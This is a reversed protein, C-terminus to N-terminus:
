RMSRMKHVTIINEALLESPHPLFVAHKGGAVAATWVQHIAPRVVLAAIEFRHGYDIEEGYKVTTSWRGESISPEVTSQLWWDQFDARHVLIWLYTNPALAVSGSITGHSGVLSGHTPEHINLRVSGDGLQMRRIYRNLWTPVVRRIRKRLTYRLLERSNYRQGSWDDGYPDFTPANTRTFFATTQIVEDLRFMDDSALFRFLNNVSRIQIDDLILLAGHRLHPYIYFYELDPFPYAHPGDLLALDLEQNLRFQPLTKQTPGEVFSVHTKRLLPSSRVNEVSGTGADLAFVTHHQSLHSLLLTSAGCGTEVSYEVRRKGAYKMLAELVTRSLTGATHLTPAISRAALRASFGQTRGRRKLIYNAHM